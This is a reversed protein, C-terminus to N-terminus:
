EGDRSTEETAPSGAAADPVATDPFLELEPPSETNEPPTTLIEIRQEMQQLERDLSRSLEMGEEFLVTAEDIPIEGNRLKEAIEELRALRSEFNKM